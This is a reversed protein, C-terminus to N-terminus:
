AALAAVTAPYERELRRTLEMYEASDYVRRLVEAGMGREFEADRRADLEDQDRQTWQRTTALVGHKRWVDWSSTLNSATVWHGTQPGWSVRRDWVYAGHVPRSIHGAHVLDMGLTPRVTYYTTGAKVTKAWIAHERRMDRLARESLMRDDIRAIRGAAGASMSSMLDRLGM